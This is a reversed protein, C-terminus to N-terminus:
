REPADLLHILQVALARNGEATPHIGDRCYDARWGTEKSIRTFDLDEQRFVAHLREVFSHFEQSPDELDWVSPYLVFTCKKRLEPPLSHLEDIVEQAITPAQPLEHGANSSGGFLRGVGGWRDFLYFSLLIPKEMPHTRNSSWQTRGAFDGSNMIWLIRRVKSVVEPHRQLYTLENPFSWSGAAASWVHGRDYLADLCSGLREDPHYDIGGGFVISDGLLLVDTAASGTFPENRMSQANFYWEYRGAFQGATSPKPIYGIERDVDYLPFDGYGARWLYEETSLIAISGSIIVFAFLRVAWRKANM